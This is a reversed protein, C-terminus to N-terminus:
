ALNSKSLFTKSILIGHWFFIEFFVPALRSSYSELNLAVRTKKERHSKYFISLTLLTEVKQDPILRCQRRWEERICFITNRHVNNLLTDHTQCWTAMRIQSLNIKLLRHCCVTCINAGVADGCRICILRVPHEAWYPRLNPAVVFSTERFGDRDGFLAHPSKIIPSSSLRSPNSSPPNSPPGFLITALGPTVANRSAAHYFTERRM